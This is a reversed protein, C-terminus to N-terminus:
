PAGSWLTYSAALAASDSVDQDNRSQDYSLGADITLAAFGAIIVLMLAVIPIVQGRQRARRRNVGRDEVYARGAIAPAWAPM